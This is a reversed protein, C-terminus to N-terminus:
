HAAAQLLVGVELPLPAAVRVKGILRNRIAARSCPGLIQLEYDDAEARELQAAWKRIDKIGILNQSSKIQVVRKRSDAYTWVIDVQEIEESSELAFTLWTNDRLAQLLCTITQVLYGRSGAQGGM